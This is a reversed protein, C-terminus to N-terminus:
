RSAPLRQELELVPRFPDGLDKIWASMDAATFRFLDPRGSALAAELEDWTLPASVAPAAAARLSYPAVLSRRPHNQACDVNVAPEDLETAVQRCFERVAEFRHPVGLPVFVHMGHGGSTKPFAALGLQGLLGRLRLAAAAAEVLGAGPRPDLDFIALVADEGDPGGGLYPHLEITGLNAAWVLSPLDELVCFNRVQGSRLRLPRTAVWDPAGRCETQAFGPADVGAPWRGLTVPRGTLYPLMVQGVAVYYDILDRKTFSTAPFLVKDLSTLRLKRGAIATEATM